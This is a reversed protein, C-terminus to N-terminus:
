FKMPVEVMTNEWEMTLKSDTTEITFKEVPKNLHKVPVEIHLVDYTKTSDYGYAGWQNLKSNLIVTWNNENPITFMTYTGKKVAKHDFEGDKNFTITTAENAGTRWVKGYPVLGGFIKRNRMSPQGYSVSVHTSKTNARPSLLKKNDKQEHQAVVATTALLLASAILLGAKKM